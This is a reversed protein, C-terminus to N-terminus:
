NEHKTAFDMRWEPCLSITIEKRTIM